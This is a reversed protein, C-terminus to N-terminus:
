EKNKKNNAETKKVRKTLLEKLQEKQLDSLPTRYKEKNIRKEVLKAQSKFRLLTPKFVKETLILVIGVLTITILITKM